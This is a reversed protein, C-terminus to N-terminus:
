ETLRHWNPAVRPTTGAELTAMSVDERSIANPGRSVKLTGAGLSMMLLSNLTSICTFKVRTFLSSAIFPPDLTFTFTSDREVKADARPREHMAETKNVCTFNISYSITIEM